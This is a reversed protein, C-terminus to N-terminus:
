RGYWGHGKLIGHVYNAEGLHQISHALIGTIRQYVPLTTGPYRSDPSERGLEGASLKKLYAIMPEKVARAYDLIVTNSSIFLGDVQALTHGHGTDNADPPRNFKRYWTASIWLQKGLVVDGLLRDCSRIAHWCLWGIPNAGLSPRKHLEEISLGDLVKEMEGFMNEYAEAIMQQWRMRAEQSTMEVDLCYYGPYFKSVIMVFGPPFHM